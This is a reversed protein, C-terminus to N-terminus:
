SARIVNTGILVPTELRFPTVPVVFAPVRCICQGLAELDVVIVGHHPVGQGGAGSISVDSPHLPQQSLTPHRKVFEDTVTTVQSGTDLLSTALVGSVKVRALNIPGAAPM